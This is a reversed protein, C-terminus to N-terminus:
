LSINSAYTEKLFEKCAKTISKAITKQFKKDKLKQAEELRILYGCEVLVGLQSTPRIVAFSAYNLGDNRFGTDKELNTLIKRALEKKVGIVM